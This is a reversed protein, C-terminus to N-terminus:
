CTDSTTVSRAVCVRVRRWSKSRHPWSRSRPPILPVHSVLELIISQSHSREFLCSDTRGKEDAQFPDPTARCEARVKVEKAKKDAPRNSKASANEKEKEAEGQNHPTHHNHHAHTQTCISTHAYAQTHSMALLSFACPHFDCLLNRVLDLLLCVPTACAQVVVLEKSVKLKRAEQTSDIQAKWLVVTDDFVDKWFGMQGEIYFLKAQALSHTHMHMETSTRTLVLAHFASIQLDTQQFLQM